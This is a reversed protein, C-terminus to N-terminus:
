RRPSRVTCKAGGGALLSEYAADQVLAHHFVIREHGRRRGESPLVRTASGACTARSTASARHLIARLMAASFERGIVSGLQAMEKADGLRDLRAM